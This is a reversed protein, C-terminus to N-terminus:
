LEEKVEILKDISKGLTNILPVPDMIVDVSHYLKVLDKIIKDLEQKQKKRRNTLSM